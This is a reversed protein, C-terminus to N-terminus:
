PLSSKECSYGGDLECDDRCLTLHYRQSSSLSCLCSIKWPLHGATTASTGTDTETETDTRVVAVAYRDQINRSKIIVAPLHEGVISM